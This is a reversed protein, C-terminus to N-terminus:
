LFKNVDLLEELAASIDFLMQESFARGILQIGVPLGQSDYGCPVSIAPLGLLNIGRMFRTSALRVDEEQGNIEIKDQGIKPATLPTTPTVLVDIQDFVSLFATQYQTRLRQANVYATASLAAGQVILAHVDPGFLQPRDLYQEYLSSAEALLIIRAATNVDRMDPVRISITRAGAQALKDIAAKVLSDVDPQLREFFFNEPLGVRIGRASPNLKAGYNERTRRCSHFDAPDHGAMAELAFAADRVTAALPGIHDLSLGLPIVGYRSVLGYTPKMGVVGCFSAPIRISGGTDTGIAIPVVGSAIAAGSGGSSGGPIRETDYPNRVAGFHPNNSTIGYALEHLTTRGVLLAGADELQEIVTATHPAVFDSYIPSGASPSEGEIFCLDKAAFPVKDLPREVAPQRLARRRPPPATGTFANLSPNVAQLRALAEPLTRAPPAVLRM